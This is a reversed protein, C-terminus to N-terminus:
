WEEPADQGAARRVAQRDLLVIGSRGVRQIAGAAELQTLVRSAMERSTGLVAALQPRTLSPHDRDLALDSHDLLTQALRQLASDFTMVEVRRLLVSVWQLLHALLDLSLGDDGDIAHHIPGGYWAALGGGTLGVLELPVPLHSGPPVSIFEGSAAVHVIAQRGDDNSQLVAAQGELVLFSTWDTGDALGVVEGPAFAHVQASNFLRDITAPSARPLVERLHELVDDRALTL